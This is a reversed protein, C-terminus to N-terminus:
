FKSKNWDTLDCHKCYVNREYMQIETVWQHDCNRQLEKQLVNIKNNYITIQSNLNSM